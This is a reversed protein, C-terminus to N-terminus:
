SHRRPNLFHVDREALHETCRKFDLKPQHLGSNLPQRRTIM